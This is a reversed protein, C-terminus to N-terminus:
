LVIGFKQLETKLQENSRFLIPHYGIQSATELSKESDDIFIVERPLVDLREFLINFARPDPKEYEIEFSSIVVDFFELINYKKLKSTLDINYNSLLGIKFRQQKLGPLWDSLEHNLKKQFLAGPLETVGGFDFCVAKIQPM